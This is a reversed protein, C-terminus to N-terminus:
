AGQITRLIRLELAKREKRNRRKEQNKYMSPRMEKAIAVPSTTGLRQALTIIERGEPGLNRTRNKEPNATAKAADVVAEIQELIKKKRSQLDIQVHLFRGQLLDQKYFFTDSGEPTIRKASRKHQRDPVTVEREQGNVVITVKKTPPDDQDFPDFMRLVKVPPSLFAEANPEEGADAARVVESLLDPATPATLEPYRKQFDGLTPRSEYYKRYNPDGALRSLQDLPSLTLPAADRAPIRNAIKERLVALEAEAAKLALRRNERRHEKRIAARLRLRDPNLHEM